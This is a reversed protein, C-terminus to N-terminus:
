APMVDLCRAVVQGLVQELAPGHRCADDRLLQTPVQAQALQAAHGILWQEIRRAEVELHFQWAMTRQEVTFAQNPCIPISTLASIREPLEFRDGHWHLVPKAGVAALPSQQGAPTLAIPAYGIEKRGMPLVRSGLARAILQAGLCIGLMPRRTALRELVLRVEEALFIYRDDEGVSVSGGLIVLMDVQSPDLKWLEDVGVDYYHIRWGKAWLLPPLLGLDEFALHRLAVQTKV